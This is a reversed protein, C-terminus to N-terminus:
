EKNPNNIQIVDYGNEFFWKSVDIINEANIIHSHGHLNSQIDAKDKFGLARSMSNLQSYGDILKSTEKYRLCCSIDEQEDPLTQLYEDVLKDTSVPDNIKDNDWAWDYFDILEQKKM